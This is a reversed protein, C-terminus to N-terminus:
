KKASAAKVKSRTRKSIDGQLEVPLEEPKAAKAEEVLDDELAKLATTKNYGLSIAVSKQHTFELARQLAPFDDVLAKHTKWFWSLYSPRLVIVGARKGTLQEAINGLQQGLESNSWHSSKPDNINRPFLWKSGPNADRWQKLWFSVRSSLGVGVLDTKVPLALSGNFSDVNKFKRFYFMAGSPDDMVLSNGATPKKAWEVSAYDNRIPPRYAYLAALLMDRIQEKTVGARVKNRAPTILSTEFKQVAAHWVKWDIYNILATASIKQQAHLAGVAMKTAGGIKQFIHTWLLLTKFKASHTDGEAMIRSHEAATTGFLGKARDNQTYFSQSKVTRVIKWPDIKDKIMQDVIETYTKKGEPMEYGAERVGLIASRLYKRATEPVLTDFRKQINYNTAWKSPDKHNILITKNDTLVKGMWEQLDKPVAIETPVGEMDHALNQALAFPQISPMAEVAPFQVPRGPGPKAGASRAQARLKRRRENVQEKHTTNWERARARREEAFDADTEMRKKLWESFKGNNLALWAPSGPEPRGKIIYTTGLETSKGKQM